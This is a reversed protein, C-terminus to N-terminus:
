HLTLKYGNPVQGGSHIQKKGENENGHVHM